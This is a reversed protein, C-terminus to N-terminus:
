SNSQALEMIKQDHMNKSNNSARGKRCGTINSFIDEVFVDLRDWPNNVFHRVESYTDPNNKVWSFRKAILFTRM